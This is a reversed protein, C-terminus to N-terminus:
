RNRCGKSRKQDIIQIFRNRFALMEGSVIYVSENSCYFFEYLVHGAFRTTQRIVKM